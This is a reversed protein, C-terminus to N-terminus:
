ENHPGGNEDPGFQGKGLQRHTEGPLNHQGNGDADRDGARGQADMPQHRLQHSDCVLVDGLLSPLREPTGLKCFNLPRREDDKGVLMNLQADAGTSMNMPDADRRLGVQMYQRRQETRGHHVIFPSFECRRPSENLLDTRRSVAGRGNLGHHRLLGDLTGPCAHAERHDGGDCQNSWMASRLRHKGIPTWYVQCVVTDLKDYM